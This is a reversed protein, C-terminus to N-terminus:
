CCWRHRLIELGFCLMYLQSDNQTLSRATYSNTCPLHIRVFQNHVCVGLVVNTLNKQDLEAVADLYEQEREAKWSVDEPKTLKGGLDTTDIASVGPVGYRLTYLWRLHIGCWHQDPTIVGHEFYLDLPEKTAGHLRKYILEPTGLDCPERQTSPRGRHGKLRRVEVNKENSIISM